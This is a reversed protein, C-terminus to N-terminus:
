VLSTPSEQGSLGTRRAGLSGASGGASPRGNRWFGPQLAAESNVIDARVPIWGTQLGAPRRKVEDSM